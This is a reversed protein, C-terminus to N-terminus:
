VRDATDIVRWFQPEPRSEMGAEAFMSVIEESSAEFFATFSAEDPWEDLVIVEGDGACFTHHMVGAAQAKAFIGDLRTSSKQAVDEFRNPDIPIRLCMIVSM